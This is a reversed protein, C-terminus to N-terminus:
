FHIPKVTHILYVVSLCLTFFFYLHNVNENEVSTEWQLKMRITYVRMYHKINIFVAYPLLWYSDM